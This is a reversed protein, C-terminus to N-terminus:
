PAPWGDAGLLRRLFHFLPVTAFWCRERFHNHFFDKETFVPVDVGVCHHEQGGQQEVAWITANGVRALSEFSDPVRSFNILSSDALTEGRFARHVAASSAFTIASEAAVPIPQSLIVEYCSVNRLPADRAAEAAGTLAILGRLGQYEGPTHPEFSVELRSSLM